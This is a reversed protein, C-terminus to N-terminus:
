EDDGLLSKIVQYAGYFGATMGILLGLILLLPTTGFHGDAWYGLLIGGFMSGVMSFLVTSVVAAGKYPNRKGNDNAM